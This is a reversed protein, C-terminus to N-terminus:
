EVRVIINEGDHRIHSVTLPEQKEAGKIEDWYIGSGVGVYPGGMPDFMGLDDHDIGEQGEKGGFRCYTLSDGEM